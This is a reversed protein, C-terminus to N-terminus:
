QRKECHALFLEIQERLIKQTKTLDHIKSEGYPYRMARYRAVNGAAREMPVYLHEDRNNIFDKFYERKQEASALHPVFKTTGTSWQRNDDDVNEESEEKGFTGSIYEHVKCGYPEYDNDFDDYIIEFNMLEDYTVGINAQSLHEIVWQLEDRTPQESEYFSIITDNPYVRGRLEGNEEFWTDFSEGVINEVANHLQQMTIGDVDLYNDAIINEKMHEMMDYASIVSGGKLVQEVADSIQSDSIYNYTHNSLIGEMIEDFSFAIGDENVWEDDDQNYTYNSNKIDNLEEELQSADDYYPGYTDYAISEVYDILALRACETHMTYAEGIYFKDYFYGFPYGYSTDWSASYITGDKEDLYYPFDSGARNEGRM